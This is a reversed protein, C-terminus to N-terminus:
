FGARRVNQGGEADIKVGRHRMHFLRDALGAYSEQHRRAVVAGHAMHGARPNLHADARNEVQQSREGVGGANSALERTRKGAVPDLRHGVYQAIEPADSGPDYMARVPQVFQRGGARRVHGFQSIAHNRGEIHRRGIGSQWGRPGLVQFTAVRGGVGRGDTCHQTALTSREAIDDHEVGGCRQDDGVTGIRQGM